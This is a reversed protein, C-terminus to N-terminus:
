YVPTRSSDYTARNQYGYHPGKLKSHVSSAIIAIYLFLFPKRKEHDQAAKVIKYLGIASWTESGPSLGSDSPGVASLNLNVGSRHM